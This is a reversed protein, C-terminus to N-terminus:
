ITVKYVNSERIGYAYDLIFVKYKIPIYNNEGAVDIFYKEFSSVIEANIANTDRISSIDRIDEPYAIVIRMTDKPIPIEIIDDNKIRKNTKMLSRITDSTLETKELFTGYFCNRYGKITNSYLTDLTGAKIQGQSYPNGLNTVPIKGDTYNVIAKINYEGNDEIM